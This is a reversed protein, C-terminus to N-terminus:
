KNEEDWISTWLINGAMDGILISSGDETVSITTVEFETFSRIM